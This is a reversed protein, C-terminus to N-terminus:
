PAPETVIRGMLAGKAQDVIVVQKCLGEGDYRLYVRGDESWADALSCDAPMAVQIQGFGESPPAAVRGAIVVILFVFCLIIMVSMVAVAIKVGKM